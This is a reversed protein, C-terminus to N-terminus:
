KVFLEVEVVSRFEFFYRLKIREIFEVILEILKFRELALQYLVRFRM